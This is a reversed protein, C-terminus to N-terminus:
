LLWLALLVTSFLLPAAFLAVAYWRTGVRWTLLRSLLGRLGKGGDTLGTMLIGATSPGALLALIVVPLLADFQGSTGTIRGPGGIVLLVGGWSIAFTLAFYTWVSHRRIFAPISM